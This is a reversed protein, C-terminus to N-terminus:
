IVQAYYRKLYLGNQPEGMPIEDYDLLEYAGKELVHSVIYPGHLMSEFKSPGLKDHKQDYTLVLDGENFSRPEVTRDCQVKM